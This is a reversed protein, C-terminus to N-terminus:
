VLSFAVYGFPLSTEGEWLAKRAEALGGEDAWVGSPCTLGVYFPIGALSSDEAALTSMAQRIGRVESAIPVTEFAIFDLSSLLCTFVRLRGLHFNALYDVTKQDEPYKGSLPSARGTLRTRWHFSILGFSFTGTFEEGNLLLAGYSGLSLGVAPALRGSTKFPASEVWDRKARLALEVALRMKEEAEAKDCGLAAFGQVDAQYRIDLPYSSTLLDSRQCSCLFPFQREQLSPM